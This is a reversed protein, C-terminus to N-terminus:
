LSWMILFSALFLPNADALMGKVVKCNNGRNQPYDGYMYYICICSHSFTTFLLCWLNNTAWIIRSLLDRASLVYIKWLCGNRSAALMTTMAALKWHGSMMWIRTNKRNITFLNMVPLHANLWVSRFKKKLIEFLISAADPSNVLVLCTWFILWSCISCAM